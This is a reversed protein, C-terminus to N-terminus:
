GQTHIQQQSFTNVSGNGILSLSPYVSMCVKMQYSLSPLSYSAGLVDEITTHTNVSAPVHKGLRQRDVISPSVYVSVCVALHDWLCIKIKEFYPFYALSDHPNLSIVYINCM